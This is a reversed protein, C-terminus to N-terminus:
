KILPNKDAIVLGAVVAGGLIVFDSLGKLWEIYDPYDKIIYNCTLTVMVLVIVIASFLNIPGKLKSKQENTLIAM